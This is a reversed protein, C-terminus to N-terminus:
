LAGRLSRLARVIFPAFLAALSAGLVALYMWLLWGELRIFPASRGADRAGLRHPAASEQLASRDAKDISRYM